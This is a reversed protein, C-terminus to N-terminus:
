QLTLYLQFFFINILGNVLLGPQGLTSNPVRRSCSRTKQDSKILTTPTQESDEFLEAAEMDLLQLSLPIPAETKEEEVQSSPDSGEQMEAPDLLCRCAEIDVCVIPIADLVLLSVISAKHFFITVNIPNCASHFASALKTIHLLQM